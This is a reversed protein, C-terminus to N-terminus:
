CYQVPNHRPCEAMSTFRREFGIPVEPIPVPPIHDDLDILADKGIDFGYRNANHFFSRQETLAKKEDISLFPNRTIDEIFPEEANLEDLYELGDPTPNISPDIGNQLDAQTM